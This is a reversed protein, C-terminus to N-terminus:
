SSLNIFRIVFFVWIAKFGDSPRIKKGNSKSRAIYKIPATKVSYGKKLFVAAKEHDGEFGKYKWPYAKLLDAPYIRVGSLQERYYTRYLMLVWISILQNAILPGWGQDKMPKFRHTKCDNYNAKNAYRDGYVVSNEQILEFLAPLDEPLYELDADFIVIWPEKAHLIGTNIAAGRGINKEHSVLKVGHFSSAIEATSDSSGDDVVIIEFQILEDRILILREIVEAIRGEENFAPVVISVRSGKKM